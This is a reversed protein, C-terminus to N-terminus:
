GEMEVWGGLTWDSDERKSMMHLTFALMFVAVAAAAYSQPDLSRSLFSGTVISPSRKSVLVTESHYVPLSFDLLESRSATM